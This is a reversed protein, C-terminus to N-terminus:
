CGFGLAAIFIKGLFLQCTRVLDFRSLIWFSSASASLTFSALLLLCSLALWSFLIASSLFRILTADLLEDDEDVDAETDDAEDANAFECSLGFLVFGFM